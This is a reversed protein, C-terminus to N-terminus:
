PAQARLSRLERRLDEIHEHLASRLEEAMAVAVEDDECALLQECLEKLRYHDVQM